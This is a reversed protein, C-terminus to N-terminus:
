GPRGSTPTATQPAMGPAWPPATGTPWRRASGPLTPRRPRAAARLSSAPSTRAPKGAVTRTRAAAWAGGAAAAAKASGSRSGVEESSEAAPRNIM